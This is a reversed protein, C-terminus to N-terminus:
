QNSHHNKKEDRLRKKEAREAKLSEKLKDKDDGIQTLNHKIYDEKFLLLKDKTVRWRGRLLQLRRYTATKTYDRMFQQKLVWWYYINNKHEITEAKM